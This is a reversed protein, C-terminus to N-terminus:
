SNDGLKQGSKRKTLILCLIIISILPVLTSSIVSPKFQFIIVLIMVLGLAPLVPLKKIRFPLMFPRSINPQKFRLSIASLNVMAFVVLIGFVSISAVDSIKGTYLVITAVTFAMTFITALWPTKRSSHIEALVTPIADDYKAIGFIIRSGSILMMLVTNTTAFLALITLLVTGNNGLAKSAAVALPANSKSLEEWGVLGIASIAVLIYIITTVLISFILARPITRTPIKTEESINSINEFGYYAFFVLLTSALITSIISAHSLYAHSPMEFYNIDTVPGISLGIAIIILLGAIEVLTFISNVWVSERIGYYNLFSLALVLVIAYLVPPYQPLFVALYGSFGIAVTAASTIAVFITLCGIFLAIFNSGLGEKVFVYEAASKPFVSSLEAYSLGTLSAMGAALIFSIWMANGSIAAVDGILVYIGAGLILGVGYMLAQFLTVSRKLGPGPDIPHM